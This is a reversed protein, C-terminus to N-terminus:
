ILVMSEKLIQGNSDTGLIKIGISIETHDILNILPYIEEQLDENLMTEFDEISFYLHIILTCTNDKISSLSQLIKAIWLTSSSNFYELNIHFNTIRKPNTIYIYTWKLLKDYVKATDEPISRGSLLLEGSLPDFDVLPTKETPEIHIKKFEM